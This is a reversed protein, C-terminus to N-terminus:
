PEEANLAQPRNPMNKFECSVIYNKFWHITKKELDVSFKKSAQM